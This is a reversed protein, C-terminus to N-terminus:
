NQNWRLFFNELIKFKLQEFISKKILQKQFFFMYFSDIEGKLNAMIFVHLGDCFAVLSMLFSPYTLILPHNLCTNDYEPM